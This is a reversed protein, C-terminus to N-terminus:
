EIVPIPRRERKCYDIVDEVLETNALVMPIGTRDDFITVKDEDVDIVQFMKKGIPTPIRVFVPDHKQKEFM